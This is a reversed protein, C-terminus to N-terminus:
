SEDDTSEAKVVGPVACCYSLAPSTAFYTQSDVRKEGPAAEVREYTGDACLRRAKVNDSLYTKLVVDKLYKQLQPDRVPAIVEVRRDLNRSMWDASGTYLEEDGGNAFYFVRSHELFRGVVSKVTITESLGAVGPRLMCVGRVILDIKVGAQSAGYLARIVDSDALRNIKVVIRATRGARAHETERRILGLMRERLNVPAVMLRRYEKQRSYGTLFNFLETADAGIEEDATLLGLDTYVSATAPNYNGTAIHVYRRLTDGENRIVLAIKCHTKLGLLGYVVHVGAKELRQAWEINHEEDFRAKLEVLATVQKGSESAEILAEPIPSKQGTRYLCMKIAMVDPDRAAASIFNTVTDYSTYPHHLLLDQRGIVDFISEDRQLPAPVTARLPRDKLEPRDLKYLGMLDPVNLPEDVVYVDDPKLDLSETIYSVMEAPMTRAVELRVAEGLRRKRLTQQMSLLLDEAETDRVEIDADRTVRFAHSEGCGMRPFLTAANAAILESLYTFKSPAGGVPVLAPLHPPIKIRVFRPEIKGTLSRTIGHELAPEVMMGLNLSLNSIYPFPHGPDVGQPTLLPFVKREFYQNMVLREGQSLANFPVIEIGKAALQPLIEEHLCRSHEAVMSVVRARIACLQQAPTLGDPSLVKSAEDVEEKLGSVRIMFFEDLNMSFIALFKLRELLPQSSDHAEELVRRFFELLSLERNFLLDKMTASDFPILAPSDAARAARNEEWSQEQQSASITM